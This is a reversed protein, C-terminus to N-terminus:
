SESCADPRVDSRYHFISQQSSVPNAHKPRPTQQAESLRQAERPLNRKSPMFYSAVAFAAERLCVHM